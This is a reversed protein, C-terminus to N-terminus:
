VQVGELAQLDQALERARLFHAGAEEATEADPRTQDTVVLALIPLGLARLQRILERRPPDWGLLVCICASLESGHRLVLERLEDFHRDTSPQVGALVELMQESHGLGRGTTFCFARSGVFLLDLLSEQTQLSCAFSAAVSVAAEFVDGEVGQAFTDLVLAHRSFYEEQYEKVIPRGARAWSRWHIRRFPDGPRYERLAIFEESEGISSALAVGGPQYNRTCPFNLLPVPYRKPLVLVTQPLRVRVFGRFLGFPDRRAVTVGRFRLPGRKLPTLEIQAEATGWRKLGALPSPTVTAQRFDMGVGSRSTLRFARMRQLPRMLRAFEDRTPRPDALDELLELDQYPRGSENRVHVRYRFPEHLSALRPLNREVTFRGRFFPAWAIAVILLCSLLAFAQFAVSQDLDSGIAGTLVMGAALLLGARTLRRPLHYGLATAFRYVHFSVGAM